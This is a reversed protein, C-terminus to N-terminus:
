NRILRSYVSHYYKRTLIKRLKYYLYMKKLYISFSFFSILFRCHVFCKTVQLTITIECTEQKCPRNICFVQNYMRLIAALWDIYHPDRRKSFMKCPARDKERRPFPFLTELRELEWSVFWRELRITKNVFTIITSNTKLVSSWCADNELRPM